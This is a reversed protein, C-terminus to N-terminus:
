TTLESIARHAQDIAADMTARGAADSNAIAINGLSKRGTVYPPSEQTMDDFLPNFWNAYGHAWRNVTIGVIDTAPDFGGGALAGALQQRTAREITEFPTAFLLHRGVRRQDSPSDTTNPGLVFKEMHVVIPDDPGQAFQYGGMSVPFDLFSVSYYSSPSSIQAVGLKKWAQWNRLLVSTYLIPAKVSWSLGESQQESLEPCLHPIIANYAALVCQKGVVRHAQGGTVYDINVQQKDDHAVKVATANLRIRTASESRDLQRYDFVAGVVDEMTRGSAVSPILQRVLLRAISANGDPFHYIYPEENATYDAIGTAKLGPLGVYSIIGLATATEISAASDNTLGQLLQLVQPHDIALHKNLFEKYSIQWLYEEQEDVPMNMQDSNYSMLRILQRQAEEALPMQRVAQDLSIKPKSLPLFYDYGQLPYQILQDSGHHEADFYISGGLDHRRFFSQDYATEFFTTDIGLDRLLTKSIQSYSGPDEISQSGGYSLYQKGKYFFENRKAHGGFDDHNDLLLIKAAPHKQRYFYAAALGSIGAGVVILDFLEDAEVVSGWDKKGERALEHAVEYSGKHSGRLGTQAPPYYNALPSMTQSVTSASVPIVSVTAAAAMGNVFDRRSINRDMGLQKDNM